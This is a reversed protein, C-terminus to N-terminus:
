GLTSYCLIHPSIGKAQPYAGSERRVHVAHTRLPLCCRRATSGQEGLTQVQDHHEGGAGHVADAELHRRSGLCVSQERGSASRRVSARVSAHREVQQHETASSDQITSNSNVAIPRSVHRNADRVLERAASAGRRDPTHTALIM